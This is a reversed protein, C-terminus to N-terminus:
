VSGSSPSERIRGVRVARAPHPPFHCSTAKTRSPKIFACPSFSGFPPARPFACSELRWNWLCVSCGLLSKCPTVKAPDATGPTHWPGRAARPAPCHHWPLAPLGPLEPGASIGPRAHEPHDSVSCLGQGPHLEASPCWSLLKPGTM